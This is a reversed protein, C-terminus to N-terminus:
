MTCLVFRTRSRTANGIVNDAPQTRVKSPKPSIKRSDTHYQPLRSSPSHMEGEEEEEEEEEQQQQQQQEVNDDNARITPPKAANWCTTLLLCLLVFFNGHINM